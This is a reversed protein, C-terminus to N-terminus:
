VYLQSTLDKAPSLSSQSSLPLPLASGLLVTVHALPPIFCLPLSSSILTPTLSASFAARLSLIVPFSLLCLMYFLLIYTLFFLERLLLLEKALAPAMNNHLLIYQKRYLFLKNLSIHFRLFFRHFFFFFLSLLMMNREVKLNGKLDYKM